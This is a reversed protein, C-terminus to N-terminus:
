YKIKCLFNRLCYIMVFICIFVEETLTLKRFLHYGFHSVIKMRLMLKPLAKKRRRVMFGSCSIVLLCRAPKNLKSGGKFTVYSLVLRYFSIFGSIKGVFLCLSSCLNIMSFVNSNM